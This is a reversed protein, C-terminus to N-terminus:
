ENKPAPGRHCLYYNNQVEYPTKGRLLRMIVYEAPLFIGGAEKCRCRHGHEEVELLVMDILGQHIGIPIEVGHVM